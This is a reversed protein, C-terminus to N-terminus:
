NHMIQIGSHMICSTEQYLVHHTAQGSTMLHLWALTYAMRSLYFVFVSEQAVSCLCTGHILLFSNELCINDTLAKDEETLIIKALVM